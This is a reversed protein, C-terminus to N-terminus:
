KLTHGFSLAGPKFRELRRILFDFVKRVDKFGVAASQPFCDLRFGATLYDLPQFSGVVVPLLMSHPSVAYGRGARLKHEAPNDPRM